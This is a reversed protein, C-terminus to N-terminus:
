SRKPSLLPKLKPYLVLSNKHDRFYIREGAWSIGTAIFTPTWLEEDFGLQRGSDYIYVSHVSSLPFFLNSNLFLNSSDRPASIKKTLEEIGGQHDFFLPFSSTFIELTPHAYLVKTAYSSIYDLSEAFMGESIIYAHLLKDAKDAYEPKFYEEIFGKPIKGRMWDSRLFQLKLFRLITTKDQQTLPERNEAHELLVEFDTALQCELLSFMKELSQNDGDGHFDYYYRGQAADRVNTIIYPAELKADVVCIRGSHDAFNKLYFQPLYHQKKVKTM